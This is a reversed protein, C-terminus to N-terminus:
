PDVQACSGSLSRRSSKILARRSANLVNKLWKFVVRSGKLHEALVELGESGRKGRQLGQSGKLGRSWM